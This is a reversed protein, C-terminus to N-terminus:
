SGTKREQPDFRPQKYSRKPAPLAKLAAAQEPNAVRRAAALLKKASYHEYYSIMAHVLEAFEAPEARAALCASWAPLVKDWDVGVQWSGHEDAFFIIQDPENNIEHLLNFILEFADGAGQTEGAKVMAVCLDLLRLCEAVWRKTGHSLRRCNKSNVNFCEYYRGSLSGAHFARTDELLEEPSPHVDELKIYGEILAPLKTKPLLEIARELLDLVDDGDLQRILVCLKDRDIPSAPM